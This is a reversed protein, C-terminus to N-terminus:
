IITCSIYVRTNDCCNIFVLYLLWTKKVQQVESYDLDSVSSSPAEQDTLFDMLHFYWLRPKYVDETGCGSIKSKQVKKMEKRYASRLNNIKRVITHRDAEPDVVRLVNVLRDYAAAKKIKDSYDKCKIKWLCPESRYVKIFDTLLKTSYNRLGADVMKM